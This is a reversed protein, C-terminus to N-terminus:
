SVEDFCIFLLFPFSLSIQIRPNPHILLNSSQRELRDYATSQAPDFCIYWYSCASCIFVMGYRSYLHLCAIYTDLYGDGRIKRLM